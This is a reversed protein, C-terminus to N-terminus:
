EVEKGESSERNAKANAANWVDLVTCDRGFELRTGDECELTVTSFGEYETCILEAEFAVQLGLSVHAIEKANLDKLLAKESLIEAPPTVTGARPKRRPPPYSASKPIAWSIMTKWITHYANHKDCQDPSADIEAKFNPYDVDGALHIMLQFWQAPQTLIIRWPYDSGAYSRQVEPQNTRDWVAALNLLDREARARVHWEKPAKQVISYFGHKTFIWM